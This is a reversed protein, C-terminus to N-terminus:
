QWLWLLNIASALIGLLAAGAAVAAASWARHWLLYVTICAWCVSALTWLLAFVEAVLLGGLTTPNAEPHESAMECLRAGGNVITATVALFSFAVLSRWTAGAADSPEGRRHQQIWRVSYIVLLVVVIFASGMVVRALHPRWLIAFTVGCGFTM